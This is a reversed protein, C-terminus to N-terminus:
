TDTFESLFNEVLQFSKGFQKKAVIIFEFAVTSKKLPSALGEYGLNECAQRLIEDFDDGCVRRLYDEIKSSFIIGNGYQGEDLFDEPEAVGLLKQLAKNINPQGDKGKNEDSDFCMAVPIGLNSFIIFPKDLKSKGGCPVIVIGKREWSLNLIESLAFLVGYDTEGEVLIVKNAFFGESVLPTFVSASNAAFIPMQIDERSWAERLARMVSDASISSFKSCKPAGQTDSLCKTVYRVREFDEIDVFYPSHTVTLIQIKKEQSLQKFLKAMFRCRSPHQYIEPEEFALIIAPHEDQDDILIERSSLYHLAAIVLCRQLGHGVRELDAPYGDEIVSKIIDPFILKPPKPTDWNFVVEAGPAYNELLANLGEALNELEKRNEEKEFIGAASSLYDEHLTKVDDSAEFREIITKILKGVAGSSSEFESVVDLTAPIFIFRTYKDLKGGGINRPGVFQEPKSLLECQDPHNAEYDELCNMAQDATTAAPLGQFENRLRRYADLKDRKGPIQRIESFRPIQLSFGHYTGAWNNASAMKVIKLQDNQIYSRFEEYEQETLDGFTVAVEIDNDTNGGFFDKETVSRKLDYFFDLAQFVTSKGAGNRGLFYTVRDLQIKQHEISRFNKIEIEKLFM